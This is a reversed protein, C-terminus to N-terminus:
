RVFQNTYLLNHDSLTESDILKESKLWNAFSEWRAEEMIGWTGSENTYYSNIMKQSELLFTKDKLEKQNGAMALIDVAEEPKAIAEKFGKATAAMFKKIATGKKELVDPHALIVPSYGYPINFKDLQFTNLEVGARKALIGEWPMFVWTADAKKNLLTDWIGLKNPTIPKFDGLGGDKKVMSAVIHDEFRADYSAYTKGDLDKMRKIDSGALSVIASADRQLIAAIAILNPKKKLTQYSIVSESPAIGLDVEKTEVLKSPTKSYNDEETSRLKVELGVDNYYGKENAVFFGTHNTNPTWDLALKILEM